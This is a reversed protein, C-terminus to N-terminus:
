FSFYQDPKFGLKELNPICAFKIMPPPGCMLIVSHDDSRPLHEKIMEENVFGSSYSWNEQARDLTYWVHLRGPNEEVMGEIEERLLIDEETQNAFLLSVETKDEPHKLIDNVVQLMPTIGTGGAIMGIKKCRMIKKEKRNEEVEFVGQGKYTYHGSPGRVDITDGIEMSELHQSMKGGEPFKPHVNKFYVKIVLDFYGLEDDSTVPTYPRIVLKGDIHASLYMHKGVPLGLVHEPTQLAFRFRRTDHSIIHKEILKFPIKQQPNLAIKTVKDGSVWRKWLYTLIGVSVAVTGAIILTKKEQDQFM